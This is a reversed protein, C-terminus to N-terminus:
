DGGKFSCQVIYRQPADGIYYFPYCTVLTLYPIGRDSLISVDEPQVIQVQEVVYKVTGRITLLEVTDGARIDKLGRFFGDRHGAIGVNGRQGPKSTGIIRGVGRNLNLEDTGDFVPVELHIKPIRLVAMPPSAQQSLSKQFDFIRKSSWLSFDVKGPEPLSLRESPRDESPPPARELAQFSAIAERSSITGHIRALLYAAIGVVGLVLFLYQIIRLTRMSGTGAGRLENYESQYM